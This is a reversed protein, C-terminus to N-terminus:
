GKREKCVSASGSGYLYSLEEKELFALNFGQFYEEHVYTLAVPSYLYEENDSEIEEPVSGFGIVIRGSEGDRETYVDGYRSMWNEAEDFDEFVYAKEAWVEVAYDLDGAINLYTVDFLPAELFMWRKGGIEVATSANTVDGIEELAQQKDDAIVLECLLQLLRDPPINITGIGTNNLVSIESAESEAALWVPQASAFSVAAGLICSLSSRFALGIISLKM